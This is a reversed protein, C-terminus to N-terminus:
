GAPARGDVPESHAEADDEADEEEKIIAGLRDSLFVLRREMDRLRKSFVNFCEQDDDPGEELRREQQLVGVRVITCDDLVDNIGDRVDELSLKEEFMLLTRFPNSV